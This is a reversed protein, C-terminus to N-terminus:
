CLTAARATVATGLFASDPFDCKRSRFCEEEALSDHDMSEELVLGLCTRGRSLKVARMISLASGCRNTTLSRDYWPTSYAGEMCKTNIAQKRGRAAGAEFQCGHRM